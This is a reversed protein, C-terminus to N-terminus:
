HGPSTSFQVLYWDRGLSAIQKTEYYARLGSLFSEPKGESCHILHAGGESGALELSIFKGEQREVAAIQLKSGPISFTQMSLLTSPESKPYAVFSMGNPLTGDDKPWNTRLDQVFDELPALQSVVRYQQGKWAIGQWTVLLALWGCVLATFCLWSRVSRQQSSGFMLGLAVVVLTVIAATTGWTAENLLFNQSVYAGALDSWQRFLQHGVELMLQIKKRSEGSFFLWAFGSLLIALNVLWSLKVVRSFLSTQITSESNPDIPKEETKNNLRNMMVIPWRFCPLHQPLTLIMRLGNDTLIRGPAM